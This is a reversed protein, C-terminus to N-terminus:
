ESNMGGVRDGEVLTWHSPADDCARLSDTKEVHGFVPSTNNRTGLGVLWDPFIYDREFDTGLVLVADLGTNYPSYLEECYRGM